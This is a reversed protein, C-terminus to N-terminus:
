SRPRRQQREIAALHLREGDDTRVGLPQMEAAVRAIGPAADVHQGADGRAGAGADPDHVRFAHADGLVLGFQLASVTTSPSGAFFRARMWSATLTARWASAMTRAIPVM